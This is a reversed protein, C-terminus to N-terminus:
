KVSPDGPKLRMQADTVIRLVEAQRSAPLRSYADVLKGLEPAFGHLMERARENVQRAISPSIERPAKGLMEAFKLLTDPNLPIYGRLYQSLASQGFGLMASVADQNWALGKAKRTEQWEHFLRKLRAADALQEPTLKSAPM